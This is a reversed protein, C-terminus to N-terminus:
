RNEWAYRASHECLSVRTFGDSWFVVVLNSCHRYNVGPLVSDGHRFTNSLWLTVYVRCTRPCHAGPRRQRPLNKSFALWIKAVVLDNSDIFLGLRGACSSSHNCLFSDWLSNGCTAFVVLQQTSLPKIQRWGSHSQWHFGVESVSVTWIVCVRLCLCQVACVSRGAHLLVYACISFARIHVHSQFYSFLQWFFPHIPFANQKRLKSVDVCDNYICKELSLDGWYTQFISITWLLDGGHMQFEFWYCVYM